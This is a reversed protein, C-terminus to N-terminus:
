SRILVDIFYAFQFKLIIIKETQKPKSSQYLDGQDEGGITAQVSPWLGRENIIDLPVGAQGFVKFFPVKKLM